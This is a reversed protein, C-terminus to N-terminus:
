FPPEDDDVAPPPVTKGQAPKSDSDGKAGFQVKYASVKLKSRKNGDKDKWSDQKLEGDVLVQSGKTLYQGCLEGTRGWAEVDVFVTYENDGSKKSVAIGMNCVAKSDNGFFKVEPDRTLRGVLIVHNYNM